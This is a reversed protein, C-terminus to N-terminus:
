LLGMVFMKFKELDEEGSYAEPHPIRVGAQTLSNSDSSPEQSATIAKRVILKIPDTRGGTEYGLNLEDFGPEPEDEVPSVPTLPQSHDLKNKIHIAARKPRSGIRPAAGHPRVEVQTDMRTVPIPQDPNM